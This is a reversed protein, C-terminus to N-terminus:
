EDEVESLPGWIAELVERNPLWNEEDDPVLVGDRAITLFWGGESSLEWIDGDGDRLKM